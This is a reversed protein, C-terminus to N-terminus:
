LNLRISVEYQTHPYQIRPHHNSAFVLHFAVPLYPTYRYLIYCQNALVEHNVCDVFCMWNNAVQLQSYIVTM